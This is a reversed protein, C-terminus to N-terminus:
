LSSTERFLYADKVVAVAFSIVHIPYEVLFDEFRDITRQTKCSVNIKM